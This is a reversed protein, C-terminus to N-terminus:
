ANKGLITRLAHELEPHEFKFVSDLLRKPIVRESALLAEKGMGGPLAEMLFTPVPFFAPRHVVGALTKTFEANSVPNPAAANVPGSLVETDLAFQIVRVIDSLTIWSIYQRGSGIRGGLGLKFAPLMLKLAGGNADLVLSVRLNVVRIGADRAPQTAAEWAMAVESFFGTGPPSAETLLEAGRDGYYGIASASILTRPKRQCNALGNCLTRTGVVRSEYIRKKKEDTWFGFIPEGALHVVADFGELSGPDMEKEPDWTIEDPGGSDRRVLKVLRHGEKALASLLASGVLGSAGSILISRTM